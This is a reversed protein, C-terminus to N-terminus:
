STGANGAIKCEDATRSEEEGDESSKEKYIENSEAEMEEPEAEAMGEVVESCTASGLM